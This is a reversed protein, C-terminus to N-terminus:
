KGKRPGLSFGWLIVSILSGSRIDKIHLRDVVRQILMGTGSFYTCVKNSSHLRWVFSLLSLDELYDQFIEAGWALFFFRESRSGTRQYWTFLRVTLKISSFGKNVSRVFTREAGMLRVIFFSLLSYLSLTLFIASAVALFVVTPPGLLMYVCRNMCLTNMHIWIDTTQTCARIRHTWNQCSM